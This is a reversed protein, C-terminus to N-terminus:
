ADGLCPCIPDGGNQRPDERRPGRQVERLERRVNRLAELREEVLRLQSDIADELYACPPKGADCISLAAGIESLGLNVERAGAIFALRKPTTPDFLRYGSDSRTAQLLGISEYFRLTRTSVGTVRSLQGILLPEDRGTNSATAPPM